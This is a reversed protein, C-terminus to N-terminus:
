TDLSHYGGITLRDKLRNWSIGLNKATAKISHGDHKRPKINPLEAAIRQEMPRLMDAVNEKQTGAYLHSPNVCCRVDCTHLVGLGSPVEGKFATYSVRHAKNWPGPYRARFQGYGDKDLQGDWLWCGSMPEPTSRREIYNRTGGKM